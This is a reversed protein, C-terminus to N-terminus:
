LHLSLVLTSKNQTKQEASKFPLLLFLLKYLRAIIDCVYDWAYVIWGEIRFLTKSGGKVQM